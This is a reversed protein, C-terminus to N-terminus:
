SFIIDLKRKIHHRDSNTYNADCKALLRSECNTNSEKSNIYNYTKFGLKTQRDLRKTLLCEKKWM